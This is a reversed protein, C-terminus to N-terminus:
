NGVIVLSIFVLVDLPMVFAGFGVVGRFGVVGEFGVVGRFGWYM